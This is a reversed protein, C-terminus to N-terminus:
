EKGDQGGMCFIYSGKRGCKEVQGDVEMFNSEPVENFPAFIAFATGRHKIIKPVFLSKDAKSAQKVM